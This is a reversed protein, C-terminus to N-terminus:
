IANNWQIQYVHTGVCLRTSRHRFKHVLRNHKTTRTRHRRLSLERESDWRRMLKKNSADCSRPNLHIFNLLLIARNIVVHRLSLATPMVMWLQGHKRRQMCHLRPRGDYSDTRGDTQRDTWRTFQSSVSSLDISIKIGYL